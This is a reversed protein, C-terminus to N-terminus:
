GRPTAFKRMKEWIADPLRVPKGELSMCVVTIEAKFLLTEGRMVAQDFVLKVGKQPHIETVVTLDDEFKAPSLYDAEVRRVVFVVGAEKMETQDVGADWVLESRGREIYKLYNAYYVIGAVDTDEYYVKIPLEHKM